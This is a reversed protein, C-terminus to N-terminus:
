LKRKGAMDIENAKDGFTFLLDGKRSQSDWWFYM